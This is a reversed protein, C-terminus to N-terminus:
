KFPLASAAPIHRSIFVVHQLFCLTTCGTNPKLVASWFAQGGKGAPVCMQLSAGEM